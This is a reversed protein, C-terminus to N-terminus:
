EKCFNSHLKSYHILSAKNFYPLTRPTSISTSWYLNQLIRGDFGHTRPLSVARLAAAFTFDNPKFPFDKLNRIGHEDRQDIM